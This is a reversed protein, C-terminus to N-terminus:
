IPSQLNLEVQPYCVITVTNDANRTVSKVKYINEEFLKFEGNISICDGNISLAYIPYNDNTSVVINLCNDVVETEFSTLVNEVGAGAIASANEGDYTVKIINALMKDAVLLEEEGLVDYTTELIYAINRSNNELDFDTYVYDIGDAFNFVIYGRAAFDRIYNEPRLNGLVGYYTNYGDEVGFAQTLALKSITEGIVFNEFMFDSGDKNLYDTPIFAMGIEVIFNSYKNYDEISIQGKFRLGSVNGTLKAQAGNMLSFDMYLATAVVNGNVAIKTGAKYYGAQAVGSVVDFAFNGNYSSLTYYGDKDVVHYSHRSGIVEDILYKEADMVRINDDSDNSVQAAVGYGLTLSDKAYSRIFLVNGNIAVYFCANNADRDYTGLEITILAGATFGNYAFNGFDSGGIKVGCNAGNGNSYFNLEFGTGTWIPQLDTNDQLFGFQRFNYGDFTDGVFYRFKFAVNANNTLSGLNYVGSASLDIETKGLLETVNILDIAEYDIEFEELSSIENAASSFINIYNGYTVDGTAEYYFKLEDDILMYVVYNDGTKYIGTEITAVSSDGWGLVYATVSTGGFNNQFDGNSGLYIAGSWLASASTGFLQIGGDFGNTAFKFKISNNIGPIAISTPTAYSTSVSMKAMGTIENFDYVKNIKTYDVTPIVPYAAITARAAAEVGSVYNGFVFDGTEFVGFSVLTDDIKAYIVSYGDGLDYSGIEFVFSNNARIAEVDTTERVIEKVTAGKYEMGTIGGTEFKIVFGSASYEHIHAGDGNTLNSPTAGFFKLALLSDGWLAPNGGWNANLSIQLKLAFNSTLPSASLDKDVIAWPTFGFSAGANYDNVLDKTTTIKSYDVVPEVDPLEPAEPEVVPCATITAKPTIEALSVYNGFTFSGTVFTAYSIVVDDVKAYIVSTGDGLDYSGVEFIFSNNASFAEIGTTKRVLENVTAGKYEMGTITNEPEFKIVFGTASTDHIHNDDETWGSPTAGFFKLAVLSQGYSADGWHGNLSIQLKLAFNSTLPSASLDTDVITWDGMSFSAGGRYDKVLDKTTTIKSYDVEPEVVPCATITARPTIEALSVYNGFTFSGTVFTAYSIVVDDVKAYIVSTGDGLDYSGVEFIFSNNASFAEIGTTKRVLENVTAGKYEMGTITNEPEFKIVFGTASTDHIHNDDETWGSPTAGFFKLAVLSQGYSADGWHGNLSIQLKLAFNSTLPSASLDTDVITWDGMSFSAGGRYDKVLDKTTTIKSYDVSYSEDAKVINSFAFFFGFSTSLVVIFSLLLIFLNKSKKILM